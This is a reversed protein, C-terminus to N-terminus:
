FITMYNLLYKHIYNHGFINFTDCIPVNENSEGLYYHKKKTM